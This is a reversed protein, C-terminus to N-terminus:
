QNVLTLTFDSANGTDIVRFSERDYGRQSCYSDGYITYVKPHTCFMYNEGDFDGGDVEARYYYYRQNLADAIATSCGGPDVNWWGESVWIDGDKYGISVSQIYKTNNCFILGAQAAGSAAVLLATLVIRTLVM